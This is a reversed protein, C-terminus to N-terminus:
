ALISRQIKERAEGYAVSHPPLPRASTGNSFFDSESLPKARPQNNMDPRCASLRLLMVFCQYPAVAPRAAVSISILPGFISGNRRGRSWGQGVPKARIYDEKERYSEEKRLRHDFFDRQWEIKLNTSVFRKWDAIIKVMPQEYPFSILAHLHDPM